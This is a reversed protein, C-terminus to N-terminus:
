TQRSRHIAVSTVLLIGLRHSSLCNGSTLAPLLALIWTPLLLTLAYTIMLPLPYPDLIFLCSFWCLFDPSSFWLTSWVYFCLPLCQNYIKHYGLRPRGQAYVLPLLQSLIGFDLISQYDCWLKISISLMALLAVQFCLVLFFFPSANIRYKYKSLWLIM